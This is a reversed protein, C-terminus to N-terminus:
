FNSYDVLRGTLWPLLLQKNTIYGFKTLQKQMSEPFMDNLEYLSIENYNYLKDTDKYVLANIITSNPQKIFYGDNCNFGSLVLMHILSVITIQHPSHTYVRHDPESYFTNVTTPFSLCMMGGESCLKNMKHLFELPNHSQHIVNHAWIVDYTEKPDFSMWDNQIFKINNHEFDEEYSDEKDIATVNINLPIENDDDDFISANAWQYSDHGNGCGVDLVNDISELMEQFQFIVELISSSHLNSNAPNDLLFDM